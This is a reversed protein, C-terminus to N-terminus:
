STETSVNPEPENRWKSWVERTISIPFSIPRREIRQENNPLITMRDKSRIIRAYGYTVLFSMKLAREVTESFDDKCVFSEYDVAKDHSKESLEKWLRILGEKFLEETQIGLEGLKNASLSRPLTAGGVQFRKWREELLSLANWYAIAESVSQETIQELETVPHWSEAFMQALNKTSLSPLKEELFAPDAYLSSSQFRLQSGQLRLVRSLHNLANADLCHDEFEKLHPFYKRLIALAYRVDLLFPNFKRDEIADCTKVVDLIDKRASAMHVSAKDARKAM